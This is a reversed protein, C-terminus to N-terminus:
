DVLMISVERVKNGKFNTVKYYKYWCVSEQLSSDENIESQKLEVNQGVSLMLQSEKQGLCHHLASGLCNGLTQIVQIHEQPFFVVALVRIASYKTNKAKEPPHGLIWKRTYIMESTIYQPNIQIKDICLDSHKGKQSRHRRQSITCMTHLTKYQKGKNWLFQCGENSLILM